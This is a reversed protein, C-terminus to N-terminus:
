LRDLGNAITNIAVMKKTQNMDTMQQIQLNLQAREFTSLENYEEVTIGALECFENIKKMQEAKEKEIEKLRKEEEKRQKKMAKLEAKRQKEEEKRQKKMAKLEAKRQKEEEKRQKEQEKQKQKAIAKIRNKEEQAAKKENYIEKFSKQNNKMEVQKNEREILKLTGKYAIVVGKESKKGFFGATKNHEKVIAKVEEDTLIIGNEVMEKVDNKNTLNKITINM